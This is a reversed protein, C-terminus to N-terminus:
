VTVITARAMVFDVTKDRRMMSRLRSMGGEKELKARVSAVSRGTREALRAVEADVEDGSVQVGERRAVDDLVLLSRVTERASDRQRERFAEWDIGARLPDMGQEMLQRVLDETRRDMERTVLVEPVEFTVRTGLQRLLDNRVEREQSREADRQLDARVRSRLAEVSEFDGLDKAFEDDLAPLVKKKIAKVAVTYEVESGALSSVAYDAAFAIVFSKEAGPELGTIEADFGPPNSAGGIELSIDTHREPEGPAAAAEGEAPPPVSIARRTLDATLVDGHASPRGEVPEFRAGRERLREIASDVAQDSVEIPSRRLTLSALDVPEIPPVTEFDARFRLPQGDDISVERVDPTDVPEIARERVADDIARPILDHMVDHLIQERYRQRVLKVPAKGPRFGPLRASKGYGRAVREVETEVVEAPIEFVIQKHTPSVDIFETKM